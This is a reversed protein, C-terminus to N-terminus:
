YIKFIWVEIALAILVLLQIIILLNCDDLALLRNTELDLSQGQHGDATSPLQLLTASM